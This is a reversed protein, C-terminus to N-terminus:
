QNIEIQFYAGQDYKRAKLKGNLREIAEGAIALGLGTGNLKKTYGPEFIVDSEIELDTLGPGSDKYDLIISGNFNSVQINIVKAQKTSLLLWYLSNEVLNTLATFLDEEWGYITLDTNCNITVDISAEKLTSNFIKFSDKIVRDIEFNAKNGRKQKALPNIRKFLDSILNSNLRFGEISDDLDKLLDEDKTAKYHRIYREIVKTESNFFQIPKRGEHLIFNVIKGLTAQGQYIAITKEIEEKL